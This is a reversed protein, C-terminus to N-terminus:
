SASVIPNVVRAAEFSVLGKDTVAWEPIGALTLFSMLMFPKRLPCGLAHAMENLRQEADAVVGPEEDTLLGLVPLALDGIVEGGRVVCLGGQLRAVHNVAVAM